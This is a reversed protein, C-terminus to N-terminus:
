RQYVYFTEEALSMCSELKLLTSYSNFHDAPVLRALTSGGARMTLRKKDIERVVPNEVILQFSVASSRLYSFAFTFLYFAFTLPLWM